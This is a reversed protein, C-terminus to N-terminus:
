NVGLENDIWDARKQLFSRVYEVQKEYTNYVSPNVSTSGVQINMIKWLEFNAEASPSVKEYLEDITTNAIELLEDRKEVWRAKVREMFAPYKILYSTWTINVYDYTAEATAWGDYNPIDAYHNGFAMDFDWVPGMTIKGGEPKYFYCSRYFAMETNNTLEALIFWDVLADMDFYAEYNNGTVIAVDAEAMYFMIPWITPKNAETIKPEKVYLRELTATDFYDVGYINTGDYEWGIEILFEIDDKNDTAKLDIKENSEEIKDAISYVGRYEGNIFLDIMTHNPNYYLYDLCDAMEHALANRILSKDFYNPVLVWDKDPRRGLVSQKKDFKIRYSKKDTGNWSANGRGKVQLRADTFDCGKFEDAGSCDISMSGFIYENKSVISANGDVYLSVVPLKKAQRKLIVRYTRQKGSSALSLKYEDRITLQEIKSDDRKSFNVIDTGDCDIELSANKLQSEKINYPLELVIENVAVDFTLNEVSNGNSLKLMVAKIEPLIDGGFVGGDCNEGNYSLINMNDYVFQLDPVAFGLWSVSSKPADILIAGDEITTGDANIRIESAEDTRIIICGGDSKLPSKAIINVPRTIILKETLVIEDTLVIERCEEDDVLAELEDLTAASYPFWAEEDSQSSETSSPETIVNQGCAAFIVSLILLCLIVYLKKM